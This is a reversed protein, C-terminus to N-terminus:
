VRFADFLMSRSAGYLVGAGLSKGRLPVCDFAKVCVGYYVHVRALM